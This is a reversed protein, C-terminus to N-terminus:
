ENDRQLVKISALLPAADTMAGDIDLTCSSAELLLVTSTTWSSGYSGEAEEDYAIASVASFAVWTLPRVMETFALLILADM